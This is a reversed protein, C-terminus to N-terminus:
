DLLIYVKGDAVHVPYTKLPILCPRATPKGTRFSFAGKHFPCEVEEGFVEGESLSAEGHTCKDDTVYYGGEHRFVAVAGIDAVDVRLGADGPVQACECIEIMDNEFSATVRIAMVGAM